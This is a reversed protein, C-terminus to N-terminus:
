PMCNREAEYEHPTPRKQPFLTGMSLAHQSYAHVQQSTARPFFQCPPDFPKLLCRSCLTCIAVTDSHVKDTNKQGVKWDLHEIFHVLQSPECCDWTNDGFFSILLLGPTCTKRQLPTAPDVVQGPWRCCVDYLADGVMEVTYNLM